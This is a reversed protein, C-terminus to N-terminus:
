FHSLARLEHNKPALILGMGTGFSHQIKGRNKLFIGGGKFFFLIFLCFQINRGLVTLNKLIKNFNAYVIYFITNLM